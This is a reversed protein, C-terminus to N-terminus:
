VALSQKDMWRGGVEQDEQRRWGLVSIVYTPFILGVAYSNCLPSCLVIAGEFSSQTVCVLPLSNKKANKKFFPGTNYNALATRAAWSFYTTDSPDPRGM